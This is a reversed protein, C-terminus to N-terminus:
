TKRGPLIWNLPNLGGGARQQPASDSFGGKSWKLITADNAKFTSGQALSMAQTAINARMKLPVKEGCQMLYRNLHYNLAGLTNLARDEKFSSFHTNQNIIGKMLNTIESVTDADVLTKRVRVIKGDEERRRLGLLQMRFDEVLKDSDTLDKIISGYGEIMDQPVYEMQQPPEQQQMM